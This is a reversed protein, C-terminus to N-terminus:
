VRHASYNHVHPFFLIVAYRLMNVFKPPKGIQVFVFVFCIISCCSNCSLSVVLFLPSVLRRHHLNVMKIIHLDSTFSLLSFFVWYIHLLFSVWARFVYYQTEEMGGVCWALVIWLIITTSSFCYMLNVCVSRTCVICQNLYISKYVNWLEFFQKQAASALNFRMWPWTGSYM